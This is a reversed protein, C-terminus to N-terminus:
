PTNTTDNNTQPLSDILALIKDAKTARRRKVTLRCERSGVEFTHCASPRSEYISCAGCSDLHRCPTPLECIDHPQGLVTFVDGRTAYFALTSPARLVPVLLSECCAGRCVECAPHM